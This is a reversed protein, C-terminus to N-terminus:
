RALLQALTPIPPLESEHGKRVCREGTWDDGEEDTHDVAVSRVSDRHAKARRSAALVRIASEKRGDPPEHTGIASYAFASTATMERTLYGQRVMARLTSDMATYRCAAVPGLARWVERVTMPRARLTEWALQKITKGGIAARGTM